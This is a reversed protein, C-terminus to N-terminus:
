CADRDHKRSAFQRRSQGFWSVGAGVLPAHELRSSIHLRIGLDEVHPMAAFMFLPAARAIGGGIVVVDPAFDSVIPRLVRGLHEGFEAFVESAVADTSAVEAIKVVELCRGTQREYRSRLARSSIMDEIIGDGYPLNWLEGGPPVGLGDIVLEGDIAFASGIGTGLTIGMARRVGRAEGVGIEGLLFADGDNLFQVSEASWGFRASVAQKLDFGYLSELKHRMLSIGDSYDFPGAIAFAAGLMSHSRGAAEYGVGALAEVFHEASIQQPLQTRVVRHLSFDSEFCLGSSIHSGGVDFVLVCRHNGVSM